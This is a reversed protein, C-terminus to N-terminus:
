FRDGPSLRRHAERAREDQMSKAYRDLMSRSKWGALRMLDGEQGGGALWYHSFSHRFLHTYVHEIGAKKARDRAVQYVGSSTLPGEHGLWLRPSTAERHQSRVRMYRDIDRAAKKGFPVVRVRNGKGVVQVTQGDLDVDELHLNAIESLRLGTDVLLRIIAMDRRAAFDQGECAKLIATIEQESLVKVPEEPIRPPHMKVMPNEKIEGDESLWGFYRQLARYRNSATAPKRGRKLIDEIFSEIHERRISTPATPMGKSRLFAALQTLAAEYTEITRDAANEARLSRLFSPVLLTERLAEQISQGNM